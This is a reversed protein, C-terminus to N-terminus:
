QNAQQRLLGECPETQAIPLDEGNYPCLEAVDECDPCKPINPKYCGRHHKVVPKQYIHRDPRIDGGAYLTVGAVILALLLKM